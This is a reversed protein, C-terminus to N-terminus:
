LWVELTVRKKTPQEELGIVLCDKGVVAETADTPDVRGTFGYRIHKLTIIDGVNITFPAAVSDIRYLFRKSSRIVGRRDVEVQAETGDYLLTGVIDQNEALPYQDTIGNTVSKVSYENAYLNVKEFGGAEAILGALSSRDQTTWNKKYGITMSELPQEITALSLGNKVIDDAYLTLSSAPASADTPLILQQIQLSCGVGSTVKSFRLYGGVSNMIDTAVNLVTNDTRIYMGLESTNPYTDFYDYCIDSVTLNTKNLIIWEILSAASNTTFTYSTNATAPRDSAGEVDCTIQTGRDHVLLRICGIAIDVEYQQGGGPPTLVVGNSRVETVATIPGDHVMYIHNASDILVPEINFCKGLLLPAKTDLAGEPIVGSQPWTITPFANIITDSFSAAAITADVFTQDIVQDLMQVELVEKRDRVEIALKNISPATFARTIGDFILIYESRFWSPDGIYIHIKHGEFAYDILDDYEGDVNLLEIQGISVSTNIKTVINPINSIIDDYVIDSVTNGLSNVYTEDNRTVYPHSSFNLEKLEAGDHYQIDILVIRHNDEELWKSINAM